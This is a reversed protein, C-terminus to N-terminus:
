RCRARYIEELRDVHAEFSLSPRLALCAQRMRQRTNPDLLNSMATTLAEVDAPDPLVYGHRGDTMIECAGNFVTSIVPLGMALAELAVLSCSDHRTPLVFFDCAAYFDAPSDTQGAFIIRDQVGLRKAQQRGREPDDKGVVVVFPAAGGSTKAINATAAVVEALGKREFYQAIMLATTADAPIGLRQRITTRAAAHGAPDFRTLDTGNFLTVLQDSIDPYHWLIMAKVYDSLCLVIPKQPGHILAEEVQAFLRRKRNLRNTLRALARTAGPARSLHTRLAARAMGAHPHYLDCRRVPLMSHVLDYKRGALTAELHNLFELYRGARTPAQAAIPVFNVGPIERGFRTSLLDVGHGRAALAAAIDATYREAGGRREEGRFIVLAINM